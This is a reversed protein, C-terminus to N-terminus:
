LFYAKKFLSTSNIFHINSEFNDSNSTPILNIEIINEPRNIIKSNDKPIM